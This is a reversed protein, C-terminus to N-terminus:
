HSGTAVPRARIRDPRDCVPRLDGLLAMAVALGSILAKGKHNVDFTDAKRFQRRLRPVDCIGSFDTNKQADVLVAEIPEVESELFPWQWSKMVRTSAVKEIQVPKPPLEVPSREALEPSWGDGVLPVSLLEPAARMLIEYHFQESGRAEPALEGIKRAVVPSLLPNINILGPKAQGLPGNWHGLRYDVFFKEPLQDLRVEDAAASVWQALWEDQFRSVDPRLVRLPDHKQHYDVFMGIMGEVTDPLEKQFRKAHGGPGRYLEGGFGTVALITGNLPDNMGDWPCVMAEYRYLSERLRRWVDDANFVALARDDPAADKHRPRRHAFGAVQAVEKAVAVDPSTDRGTTITSVSDKLGAAKALALALRSDKGGSLRLVLRDTLGAVARFQDILAETIEDWDASDLETRTDQDPDAWIWSSTSREVTLGGHGWRASGTEGPPLYRASRAPLRDGFLNSHGILWSLAVADFGPTALLDSIAMSRNTVLVVGPGEAWYLPTLGTFDGQFQLGRAPDVGVFSYSGTLGDVVADVGRDTRFRRLLDATLDHQRGSTSLAPGNVVVVSDDDVLVRDACLPDAAASAAIAWHGTPSLHFLRQQDFLETFEVAEPMRGSFRRVATPSGAVLLFTIV